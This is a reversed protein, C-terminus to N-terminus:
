TPYTHKKNVAFPARMLWRYSCDALLAAINQRAERQTREWSETEKGEAPAYEARNPVGGTEFAFERL